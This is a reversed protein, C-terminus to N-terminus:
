EALWKELRYFLYTTCSSALYAKHGLSVKRGGLSTIIAEYEISIDQRGGLVFCLKAEKQFVSKYHSLPQGNETLQFMQYGQARIARLYGGVNDVPQWHFSAGEPLPENNLAKKILAAVELEDCPTSPEVPLKHVELLWPSEKTFLVQLQPAMTEVFSPFLSLILRAVVDVKSEGPLNKLSFDRSPPKEELLLLILM